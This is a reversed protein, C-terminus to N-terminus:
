KTVQELKSIDESIKYLRNSIEEVSKDNSEKVAEIRKNYERMDVTERYAVYGFFGSVSLIIALPFISKSM